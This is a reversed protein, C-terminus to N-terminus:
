FRYQASVGTVSHTFDRYGPFYKAPLSGLNNRGADYSFSASVVFQKTVAYTIGASAGYDVDDRLSPASGATDDGLTYNAELYKIGADVGLAKTLNRHYVLSITTDTYPVLGTSSVFVYQKYGLTLSQDYPLTATATGEGYFRTTKLDTIPTNPNFSRFDPGASLKLTLWTTPKGELGLLVRQYNNSSFHRDSNIALAFQDQQQEGVRYGLTFALNPLLKYGLDAVGNLDYRSVYDQYGKYPAVSTNFLYTNLDYDILTSITRFFFSGADYQLFVTYRDQIQNRRERAVSHAYNNRYKDNQDAAAGGLQNLAYTTAYKNGDNYLFAEDIGVSLSDQKWRVVGNLRHATYNESPANDYTFREPNYTLSLAAFDKNGLLPVLNAGLKASLANVWSSQARLSLGSVGIVNDDYSEKASISLDALWDPKTWSPASPTGASTSAADAARTSGAPAFVASFATLIFLLVRTQKTQM